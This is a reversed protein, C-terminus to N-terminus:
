PALMGTQDVYARAVTGEADALAGVTTPKGDRLRRRGDMKAALRDVGAQAEAVTAEDVLPRWWRQAASHNAKEM